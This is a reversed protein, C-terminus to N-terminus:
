GITGPNSISVTSRCHHSCYLLFASQYKREGKHVTLVHKRLVDRSGFNRDCTVWEFYRRTEHVQEIHNKLIKANVLKSKCISCEYNRQREHVTSTHQAVRIKSSSEYHCSKCFFKKEGHVFTVHAALNARTAFRKSCTSCEHDKNKEQAAWNKRRHLLKTVFAGRTITRNWRRETSVIRWSRM